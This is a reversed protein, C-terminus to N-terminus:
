WPLKLKEIPMYVHEGLPAYWPGGIRCVPDLKKQDIRGDLYVSDDVYFHLIEGIIVTHPENGIDFSNFLRCEFCVPAKAVRPPRVTKSDSLAINFTAPESQEPGLPTASLHLQELLAMNAINIVFERTTRINRSTDKEGSGKDMQILVLPPDQSLQTFASFPAANVLGQENVTTVWAIPRPVVSGSMIKYISAHDLSSTSLEM